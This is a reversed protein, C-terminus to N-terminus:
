PMRLVAKTAVFAFKTVPVEITAGFFSDMNAIVRKCIEQIEQKDTVVTQSCVTCRLRGDPLRYYEVGSIKAGCYSCFMQNNKDQDLSQFAESQGKGERAQRLEGGDFGLTHLFSKTGNLDLATTRKGGNYKLYYREHYPPTKLIEAMPSENDPLTEQIAEAEQQQGAELLTSKDNM